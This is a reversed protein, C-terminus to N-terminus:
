FSSESEDWDNFDCNVRKLRKFREKEKEPYMIVDDGDEIVDDFVVVFRDKRNSLM